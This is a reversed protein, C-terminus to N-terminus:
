SRRPPMLASGVREVNPQEASGAVVIQEEEDGPVQRADGLPEEQDVAAFYPYAAALLLTVTVLM